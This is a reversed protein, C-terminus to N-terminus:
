ACGCQSVVMGKLKKTGVESKNKWYVINLSEMKKPACCPRPIQKRKSKKKRMLNQIRAHNSSYNKTKQVCKGKCFYAEFQQPKIIWNWQLEKFSINMSYRCCLKTKRGSTCDLPYRRQHKNNPRSRKSRATSETLAIDLVARGPAQYTVNILKGSHAKAAIETSNVSLFTFGHAECEACEIQLGYNLTPFEVWTEVAKSLDFVEWGDTALLIQQASVLYRDPEKFHAPEQLQYIFVTAEKPKESDAVANSRGIRGDAKHHVGKRAKYISLRASTVALGRTSNGLHNPFNLSFFLTKIGSSQFSGNTFDFQLPVEDRFTYFRQVIDDYHEETGSNKMNRHYIEMVRDLESQTVNVQSADPAREMGLELLIHQKINEIEEELDLDEFEDKNLTESSPLEEIAEPLPKTRRVLATTVVCLLLFTHATYLCRRTM